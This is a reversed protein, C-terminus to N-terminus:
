DCSSMTNALRQTQGAFVVEYTLVESSLTQYVFINGYAVSSLMKNDQASVTM